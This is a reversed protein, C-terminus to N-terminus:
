AAAQNPSTGLANLLTAGAERLDTPVEQGDTVWRVPMGLEASFVAVMSDLPVEDVKTIIAHSAGMAAYDARAAMVLDSRMTAPVVFHTEDADLRHLMARWATADSRPGRGPTDVLIVDCKALRMLAGTLDRSDYAVEFDIGAVDAYSQLQEVAGARYTDLSLFGVKLGGFAEPHVALKAATTTKGAGTPGVLAVIYPRGDRRRAGAAFRPTGPTVRHRFQALSESTTCAVEVGAGAGFRIPRSWVLIADDGLAGNAFAFATAYDPGRFTELRM